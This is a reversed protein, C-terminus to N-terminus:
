KVWEFGGKLVPIGVTYSKVADDIKETTNLTEHVITAGENFIVFWLKDRLAGCVERYIALKAMNAVAVLEEPEEYTILAYGM